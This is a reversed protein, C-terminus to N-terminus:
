KLKHSKRALKEYYFDELREVLVPWPYEYIAVKRAEEGLRNALHSDKLLTIIKQAFDEPDWEALLGIEYKEFLFKIDGCPNAVTPRGLSLYDCIKNPWRGRNYITDPFPLVFLDACGLYWPLDEFPLFGTLILCEEVQYEKALEHISSGTQGTILLKVGPFQQVVIALAAMVIELDLHTDSSSFGIVPGTVNLNV